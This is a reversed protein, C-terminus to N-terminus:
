IYYVTYTAGNANLSQGDDVGVIIITNSNYSLLMPNSGKTNGTWYVLGAPVGWVIPATGVKFGNADESTISLIMKPIEPFTLNHNVNGDGTYTFSKINLGQSQRSSLCNYKIGYIKYIRPRYGEFNENAVSSFYAFTTSDKVKFKFWREKYDSYDYSKNATLLLDVDFFALRGSMTYNGDNVTSFVVMLQDFKSIDQNFSVDVNLNDYAASVPAYTTDSGSDYVLVKEYDEIDQAPEIEPEGLIELTDNYSLEEIGDDNIWKEEAEDYRLYQGESPSTIEVDGLDDLDSAGGGGTANIWKGSTADYKLVQGDSPNIIETDTLNALTTVAENTANVWKSNQADYKLIQGDSLNDLDVDTLNELSTSSAASSIVGNQDITITVGDVKVGGLVVNSATPLVYKNAQAEIGDLKTRDVNLFPTACLYLGSEANITNLFDTVNKIGTELHNLNVSDIPSTKTPLNQWNTVVYVTVNPM